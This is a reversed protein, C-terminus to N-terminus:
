PSIESVEDLWRWGLQQEYLLLVWPNKKDEAQCSVLLCLSNRGILGVPESFTSPEKYLRWQGSTTMSQPDPFFVVLNGPSM